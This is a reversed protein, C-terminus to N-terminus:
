LSVRISIFPLIAAFVCYGIFLSLFLLASASFKSLDFPKPEPNRSLRVAWVTWPIILFPLYEKYAFIPTSLIPLLRGDSLTASLGQVTFILVAFLLVVLM